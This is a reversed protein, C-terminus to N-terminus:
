NKVDAILLLNNQSMDIDSWWIQEEISSVSTLNTNSFRTFSKLCVIYISTRCPFINVKFMLKRIFMWIDTEPGWSVPWIEIFTELFCNQAISVLSTAFLILSNIQFKLGGQRQSHHFFSFLYTTNSIFDLFSIKRKVKATKFINKPKLM